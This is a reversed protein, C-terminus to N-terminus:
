ASGRGLRRQVLLGTVVALVVAVAGVRGDIPMDLLTYVIPLAILSAIMAGAGAGLALARHALTPREPTARM